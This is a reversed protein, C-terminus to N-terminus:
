VEKRRLAAGRPAIQEIAGWLAAIDGAHEELRASVGGLRLFIAALLGNATLGLVALLIDTVTV